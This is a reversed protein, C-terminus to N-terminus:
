RKERLLARVLGESGTRANLARLNGQRDFIWLAPIANLSLGRILPSKWGLGDFIVPFALQRAQILAELKERSADLSVGVVAVEQGAFTKRLTELDELGAVSPASWSAFFYVLTVKGGFAALDVPAGTVSTGRVEVPRGLFSLRRLDDEIRGRVEPTRAASLALQLLEGKRRPNGDYLTAVEAILPAVRRDNPYRSQFALVQTLLAEKEQEASAGLRRMSLSLSAFEFDVRRDEPASALGDRLIRAAMQDDAPNGSFDSRVAYLRALRLRADVARPSAPHAQMFERLAAEQRALHALTVARLEEQSRVPAAQQPGAELVTVAQWDAEADASARSSAASLLIAAAVLLFPRPIM